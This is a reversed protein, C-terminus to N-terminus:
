NANMMVTLTTTEGTMTNELVVQVPYQGSLQGDNSFLLELSLMNNNDTTNLKSDDITVTVGQPGNVQKIRLAQSLDTFGYSLKILQSSDFLRSADLKITTDASDNYAVSVTGDIATYDIIPQTPAAFASAVTLSAALAIAAAFKSPNFM